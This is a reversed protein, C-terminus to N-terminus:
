SVIYPARVFAGSVFAGSVFAGSVFAGSVFAGSVFAGASLLGLPCMNRVISLEGQVFNRPCRTAEFVNAPILKRPRKASFFEHTYVNATLYIFENKHTKPCFNSGEASEVTSLASEELFDGRVFKMSTVLARFFLM